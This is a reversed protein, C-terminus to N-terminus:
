TGALQSFGRKQNTLCIDYDKGLIFEGPNMAKDDIYFDAAPKIHYEHYLVGWEKLQKKTLDTFDKGSSQGRATFIKITHGEFFLENIKKVMEPVPKAKYYEQNETTTCITGDVDICYIM